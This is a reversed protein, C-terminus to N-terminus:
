TRLSYDDRLQYHSDYPPSDPNLEFSIKCIIKNLLDQEFCSDKITGDSKVGDLKVNKFYSNKIM